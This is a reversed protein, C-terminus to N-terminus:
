DGWVGPGRPGWPNLALQPKNAKTAVFTDAWNPAPEAPCAQQTQQSLGPTSYATVLGGDNGWHISESLISPPVPPPPPMASYSLTWTNPEASGVRMSM